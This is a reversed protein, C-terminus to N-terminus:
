VSLVFDADRVLRDMWRPWGESPPSELYQDLITDIGDSRLRNSLTLVCNQHEPSDHSYSIFATPPRAENPTM